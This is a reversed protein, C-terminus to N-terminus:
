DGKTNEIPTFSVNFYKDSRSANLEFNEGEYIAFGYDNFGKEIEEFIDDTNANPDISLVIADIHYLYRTAAKTSNRDMFFSIRSVKYTTDDYNFQYHIMADIDDKNTNFVDTISSFTAIKEAKEENDVVSMPTFDILSNTKLEDTIDAPSFDFYKTEAKETKAGENTNCGTLVLAVLLMTIIFGKKM